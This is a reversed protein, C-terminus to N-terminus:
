WTWGGGCVCPAALSLFALLGVSFMGLAQTRYLRQRVPFQAPVPAADPHQWPIQLLEFDVRARSHEPAGWPLMAVAPVNGATNTGGRAECARPGEVSGRNM